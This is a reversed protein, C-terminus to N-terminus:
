EFITEADLRSTAISRATGETAESLVTIRDVSKVSEYCKEGVFVLRIPGGALSESLTKGFKKRAFITTSKSADQITMSSTYDRSSFLVYSAEPEINGLGLVDSVRVGEWAVDKVVWGELCKFDQTLRVRPLSDIQDISLQVKKGVKGDITLKWPLKPEIASLTKRTSYDPLDTLQKM